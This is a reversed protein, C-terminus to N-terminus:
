LVGVDAFSTYMELNSSQVAAQASTGPEVLIGEAKSGKCFRIAFMLVGLSGDTTTRTRSSATVTLHQISLPWRTRNDDM